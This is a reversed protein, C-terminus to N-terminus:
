QQGGSAEVSLAEINKCLQAAAPAASVSPVQQGGSFVPAAEGYYYHTVNFFKRLRRRFNVLPSTSSSAAVVEAETKLTVEDGRWFSPDDDRGTHYRGADAPAESV